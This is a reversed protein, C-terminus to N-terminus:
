VKFQKNLTKAKKNIYNKYEEIVKNINDKTIGLGQLNAYVRKELLPDDKYYEEVLQIAELNSIIKYKLGLDSNFVQLLEKIKKFNNQLKYILFKRKLTKFFKGEKEYDKIDGKINTTYKKIDLKEESEKLYIISTEIFEYTEKEWIVLDIKIFDLKDYVKKIDNYVFKDNLHLKKKEGDKTQIKLEIFYMYDTNFIINLIKMFEDYCQKPTDGETIKTICDYDGFYNIQQISSSGVLYIKNEKYRLKSLTLSITENIKQKGTIFDDM